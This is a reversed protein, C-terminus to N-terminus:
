YANFRQFRRPLKSKLQLATILNKKLFWKWKISFLIVIFCCVLWPFLWFTHWKCLIKKMGNLQTVSQWNLEKMEGTNNVLIFLSHSSRFSSKNYIHSSWRMVCIMLSTFFLMRLCLRMKLCVHIYLCGM